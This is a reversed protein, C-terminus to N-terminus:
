TKIGNILKEIKSDRKNIIKDNLVNELVIEPDASLSDIKITFVEGDLTDKLTYLPLFTTPHYSTPLHNEFRGSFKKLLKDIM